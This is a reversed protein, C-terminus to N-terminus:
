RTGSAVFSAILHTACRAACARAPARRASDGDEGLKDAVARAIEDVPFGQGPPVRVVSTALVYPM